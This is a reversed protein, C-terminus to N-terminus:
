TKHFRRIFFWCCRPGIYSFNRYRVTFDLLQLAFSFTRWWCCLTLFSFSFLNKLRLQQLLYAFWIKPSWHGREPNRNGSTGNIASFNIWKDIVAAWALFSLTEKEKKLRLFYLNTIPFIVRKGFYIRLFDTPMHYKM